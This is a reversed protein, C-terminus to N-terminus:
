EVEQLSNELCKEIARTARKALAHDRGEATVGVTIGNKRIIGPFYFDSKNRDDATNVPINCERCKLYIEHNINKNNTAALVYDSGYLDSAEYPKVLLELQNNEAFARVEPLAEEAIVRVRCQFKLLTEIRRGAIKGAGIVTVIKGRFNTFLPFWEGRGSEANEVHSDLQVTEKTKEQAHKGDPREKQRFVAGYTKGLFTLLEEPSVGEEEQERGIVLLVAGTKMAARYKEPFGGAAGSDKTVLYGADLQRLMAANLEESFPGQMCILQKGAFGLASCSEVVETMPLVRPFLRQEYNRVEAYKSLEKSGITLLVNGETRNLYEAVSEHSEFYLCAATQHPQGSSGAPRLVRVYKCGAKHSAAKINESVVRAYPHTTDIVYDFRHKKMLLTMEEETLRGAHIRIRDSDEPLLEKGYDTAVCAHVTLGAEDTGCALAELLERGETTGAFILLEPM